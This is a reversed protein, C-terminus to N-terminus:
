LDKIVDTLFQGPGLFIKKPNPNDCSMQVFEDWKNDILDIFWQPSKRQTIRKMYEIKLSKEPMITYYPIQKENLLKVVSDQASILIYDYKDINECVFDIYNKPFDENVIGCTRGSFSNPELDLIRFQDKFSNAFSTKGIGTFGSIIIASM